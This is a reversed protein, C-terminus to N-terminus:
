FPAGIVIRWGSLDGALRYGFGLRPADFRWIKLRPRSSFTIGAEVQGREEETDALPASPPDGIFDFISYFGLEFQHARVSRGFTRTFDFGQRIRFFQDGPTDNRYAVGSYNLETRELVTWDNEDFNRELKFGVGYLLGNVSSSALSAGARVYPILHWDNRLVKDVEIGPVVSFSDIRTPPGESVVDLPSFDFFGATIPVLLHVGLQDSRTERLEKEYTYRYIQLSRGDFDYVGSGLDTAFVYNISQGVADDEEQEAPAQAHAVGALLALLAGLHRPQM